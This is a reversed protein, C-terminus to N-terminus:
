NCVYRTINRTQKCHQEANDDVAETEPHRFIQVLDLRNGLPVTRAARQDLEADTEIQDGGSAGHRHQRGSAIEHLGVGIM